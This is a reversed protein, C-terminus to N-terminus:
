YLPENTNTTEVKKKKKIIYFAGGGILALFFLMPIYSLISKKNGGILDQTTLVYNAQGNTTFTVYGNVVKVGSTLATYAGLTDYTFVRLEADDPYIDKVNILVEIGTPLSTTFTLPTTSSKTITPDIKSQYTNAPIIIQYQLGTYADIVNYYLKQKNINLKDLLDISIEKPTQTQFFIHDKTDLVGDLKTISSTIGPQKYVVIYYESIENNLDTITIKIKNLGAVLNKENEIKYKATASKTKLYIPLSNVNKDVSFFYTDKGDIIPIEMGNLTLVEIKSSEVNEKFEEESRIVKIDYTQSVGNKSSVILQFNNEGIRLSKTGTGILQAKPDTTQATLFIQEVSRSVTVQYSTQGEIYSLNTGEINLYKLTTDGSRDDTRVIMIEYTSSSGSQAKVVVRVRNDGYNLIRKGTGTIEQNREGKTAVVNVETTSSPVTLTYNYTERNFTPSITFGEVYLDGIITDTSPLVSNITIGSYSQAVISNDVYKAPATEKIEIKSKGANIATMKLVIPGGNSWASTNSNKDIRIVGNSVSYEGRGQTWSIDDLRLYYPDYIINYHAESIMATNGYDIIMTVEFSTGVVPRQNQTDLNTAANVFCPFIFYVIFILFIKRIIKKM